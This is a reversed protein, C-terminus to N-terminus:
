GHYPPTCSIIHCDQYGSWMAWEGTDVSVVIWWQDWHTKSANEAQCYYFVYGPALDTPGSHIVITDAYVRSAGCYFYSYSDYNHASAPSPAAILAGLSLIAAALLMMIKRM